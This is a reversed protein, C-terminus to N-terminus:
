EDQLTKDYDGLIIGVLTLKVKEESKFSIQRETEYLYLTVGSVAVYSPSFYVLDEMTQEKLIDYMKQRNRMASLDDVALLYKSIFSDLAEKDISHVMTVSDDGSAAITLGFSVARGQFAARKQTNPFKLFAIAM